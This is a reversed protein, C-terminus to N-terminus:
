PLSGALSLAEELGGTGSLAYLINNKIWLLIYQEPRETLRQRIFTGQVGDVSVERYSARDRPIPVLLTSTWDVSSAFRDAEQTSMGLLQLYARGLAQIDLGEPADITPSTSQALSVCGGFAAEEHDCDGYLTVVSDPIEVNVTAGDLETPLQIDERGIESLVAQMLALDLDMTLKGGPIYEIRTPEGAAGPLRVPFGLLVGAEGADAVEQTEGYEEVQVRENFMLELQTSNGLQEPLAAPNIEIVQIRQVRFLGLFSNAIAQAPPFALAVALIIVLGFVGWAMRFRTQFIKQFMSPEEKILSYEQWRQWARGGAAVSIRPAAELAEFRQILAQRQQEVSTLTQRCNACSELHQLFHEQDAAPLEGDLYARMKGEPIHM